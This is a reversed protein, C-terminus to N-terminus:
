IHRLNEIEQALLITARKLGVLYTRILDLEERLQVTEDLSREATLANLLPESTAIADEIMKDVEEELTM